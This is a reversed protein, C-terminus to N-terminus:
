LALMRAPQLRRLARPRGRSAQLLTEATLGHGQLLLHEVPQVIGTAGAAGVAWLALLAGVRGVAQAWGRGAM